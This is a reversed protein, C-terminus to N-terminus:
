RAALKSVELLAERYSVAHKKAYSEALEHLEASDVIVEPPNFKGRQARRRSAECMAAHYTLGETDMLVEAAAHLDEGTFQNQTIM